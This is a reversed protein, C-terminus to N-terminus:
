RRAKLEDCTLCSCLWETNWVCVTGYTSQKSDDHNHHHLSSFVSMDRLYFREHHECGDVIKKVNQFHIKRCGGGSVSVGEDYRMYTHTDIDEHM